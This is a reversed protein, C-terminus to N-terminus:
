PCLRNAVKEIEKYGKSKPILYKSPTALDGTIVESAEHYVGHAFGKRTTKRSIQKGIASQTCNQQRSSHEQINGAPCKADPGVAKFKMRISLCFHSM